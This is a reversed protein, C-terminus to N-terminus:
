NRTKKVPEPLKQSLMFQLAVFSVMILILGMVLLRLAMKRNYIFKSAQYLFLFGMSCIFILISAVISEIIFANQIGPYIFTPDGHLDAGVAPLNVSYDMYVLYVVGTQLVFLIIWVIILGLAKSPMPMSMRRRKMKPFNIKPKRLKNGFIWPIRKKVKEATTISGSVSTKRKTPYRQTKPLARRREVNFQPKKRERSKNKSQTSEPM